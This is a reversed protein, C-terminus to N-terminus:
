SLFSPMPVTRPPSWRMTLDNRLTLVGCRRILSDCRWQSARLSLGGSMEGVVTETKRIDRTMVVDWTQTRQSFRYVVGRSFGRWKLGVQKEVLEALSRAAVEPTITVLGVALLEGDGSIMQVVVRREDTRDAAVSANAFIAAALVAAVIFSIPKV